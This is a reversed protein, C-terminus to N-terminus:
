EDDDEDIDTPDTLVAIAAAKWDNRRRDGEPVELGRDKIAAELEPASMDEVPKEAQPASAEDGKFKALERRLAENEGLIEKVSQPRKEPLATKLAQALALERNPGNAEHWVKKTATDVLCCVVKEGPEPGVAELAGDVRKFTTGRNHFSYTSNFTGLQKLQEPRPHFPM